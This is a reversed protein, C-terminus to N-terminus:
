AAYQTLVRSIYKTIILTDKRQAAACCCCSCSCSCSSASLLDSSGLMRWSSTGTVLWDIVQKILDMNWYAPNWRFKIPPFNQHFDRVFVMFCPTVPFNVKPKWIMEVHRSPQSLIRSLIAVYGNIYGLRLRISNPIINILVTRQNLSLLIINVNRKTM